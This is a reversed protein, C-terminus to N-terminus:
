PKKSNEESEQESPSSIKIKFPNIYEKNDAEKFKKDREELIKLIKEYLEEKFISKKDSVEIEIRKNLFTYKYFILFSLLAAIFLLFLSTFVFHKVLVLFFKYIVKSKFIKKIQPFKIKM